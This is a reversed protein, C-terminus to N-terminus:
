GRGQRRTTRRRRATCWWRRIRATCPLGQPSPRRGGRTGRRRGRGRGWGSSRACSPSTTACRRSTPTTTSPSAWPCPAAATTLPLPTPTPAPPPPPRSRSRRGPRTSRTSSTSPRCRTQPTPPPTPPPSSPPPNSSSRGRRRTPTPCPPRYKQQAACACPAFAAEADACLAGCEVRSGGMGHTDPLTGPGWGHIDNAFRKRGLVAAPWGCLLMTFAIFYWGGIAWYLTTATDCCVSGKVDQFAASLPACGLLEGAEVVAAEFYQGSSNAAAYVVDLLAPRIRIEGSGSNLNDIAEDAKTQPFSGVTSAIQQWTSQLPDHAASCTDGIVSQYVDAVDFTFTVNYQSVTCLTGTATGSLDGCLQAAQTLVYQNGVSAGGNCADAVGLVFLPWALGVLLFVVAMSGFMLCASCSACFSAWRRSKFCLMSLLSLLVIISPIFLPISLAQVGSVTVPIAGASVTKLSTQTYYDVSADVCATTLCYTGNPYDNGDVDVDVRQTQAESFATLDLTQSKLALAGIFYLPGHQSYVPTSLADLYHAVDPTILSSLNTPALYQSNNLYLTANDVLRLLVGAMATLGGSDYAALLNAESIDALYVHMQSYLLERLTSVLQQAQQLDALDAYVEDLSSALSSATDQASTLDVSTLASQVAAIQSLASSVDFTTLSSSVSALSANVVSLDIAQLTAVTSTLTANIPALGSGQPSAQALALNLQAVLAATQSSPPTVLQIATINTMLETYRTPDVLCRDGASSCDVDGSLCPVNGALMCRKTTPTATNPSPISQCSHSVSCDSNAACRAGTDICYGYTTLQALDPLILALLSLANAKFQQLQVLAANLSANFPIANITANLQTLQNVGSFNASQTSNLASTLLGSTPGTLLAASAASAQATMASIENLYATISLNLLQTQLAGVQGQVAAVSGLASYVTANLTPALTVVADFDSPLQLLSANFAEAMDLASFFCPLVGLMPSVLALQGDVVTLLGEVAAATGNIAVLLQVPGTVNLGGVQQVLAYLSANTAVVVASINALAAQSVAVQAQIAGFVNAADLAQVDAQLQALSRGTHAYDPSTTYSANISALNGEMAQLQAVNYGGAGEVASLDTQATSAAIANPLATTTNSLDSAIPRAGNVPDTVNSSFTSLTALNATMAQMATVATAISAGVQSVDTEVGAIGGSVNAVQATISSLVVPASALTANVGALSSQLGALVSLLLTTNPLMGPATADVICTMDAVLATLDVAGAITANVATVLDVVTHSALSVILDRVPVALGQVTSVLPAPANAVAKMSSPLSATGAIYSMLIWVVTFVIFLALYSRACWRERRSYEMAGTLLNGQLGCCRTRVTPWRKGCTGGRVCCCCYRGLCLGVGLVLSLLAFFLGVGVYVGYSQLLNVPSSSSPASSYLAAFSSFPDFWSCSDDGYSDTTCTYWDYAGLDPSILAAEFNLRPLHHLDNVVSSSKDCSPTSVSPPTCLTSPLNSVLLLLVPLSLLPTM